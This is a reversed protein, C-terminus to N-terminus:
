RELGDGAIVHLVIGLNGALQRLPSPRNEFPVTNRDSWGLYTELAFSGNEWVAQSFDHPGAVMVSARLEPPPDALLAWQTFAVYSMGMTALNGDFWPQERLWAITDQADEAERVM